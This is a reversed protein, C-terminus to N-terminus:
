SATGGTGQRFPCVEDSLVGRADLNDFVFALLKLGDNIEMEPITKLRASIERAEVITM